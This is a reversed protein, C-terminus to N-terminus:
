AGHVAEYREEALARNEDHTAIDVGRRGISAIDPQPDDILAAFSRRWGAWMESKPGSWSYSRGFAAQAVDEITSGKELALLAKARWAAGQPKGALPSLHFRALREIGLLDRYLELDDAVLHKILQETHYGVFM